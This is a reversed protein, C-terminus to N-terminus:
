ETIYTLFNEPLIRDCKFIKYMDTKIKEMEEREYISSAPLEKIRM